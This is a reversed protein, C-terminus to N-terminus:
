RPLPRGNVARILRFLSYPLIKSKKTEKEETKKLRKGKRM